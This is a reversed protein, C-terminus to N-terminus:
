KPTLEFELKTLSADGAQIDIRLLRDIRRDPQQYGQPVNGLYLRAGGSPLRCVFHGQPDTM